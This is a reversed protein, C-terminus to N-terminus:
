YIDQLISVTDESYAGGAVSLFFSARKQGHRAKIAVSALMTQVRSELAGGVDGEAGPFSPMSTAGGGGLGSGNTGGSGSVSAVSTNQTGNQQTPANGHGGHGSSSPWSAMATDATMPAAGIDIKRFDSEKLKGRDM